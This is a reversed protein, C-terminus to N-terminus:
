VIFRNKESGAWGVFWGVMRLVAINLKGVIEALISCRQAPFCLIRNVEDNKTTNKQLQVYLKHKCVMYDINEM